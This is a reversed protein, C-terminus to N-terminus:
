EVKWPLTYCLRVYPASYDAISVFAKTAHSYHSTCCSFHELLIRQMVHCHLYGAVGGMFKEVLLTM